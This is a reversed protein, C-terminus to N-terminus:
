RRLNGPAAPVVVQVVVWVLALVLVVQVQVVVWMLALVLVVQVQVLM